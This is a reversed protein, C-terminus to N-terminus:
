DNGGAVSKRHYDFYRALYAADRDPYASRRFPTHVNVIRRESDVGAPMLWTGVETVAELWTMLESETVEDSTLMHFDRRGLAKWGWKWVRIVRREETTDCPGALVVLDQPFADVSGRVRWKLVRRIWWRAFSVKADQVKM